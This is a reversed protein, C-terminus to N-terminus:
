IMVLCPNGVHSMEREIVITSWMDCRDDEEGGRKKKGTIFRTRTHTGRRLVEEAYSSCDGSFREQFSCSGLGSPLCHRLSLAALLLQEVDTVPADALYRPRSGESRKGLSKAVESNDLTWAARPLAGWCAQTACAPRLQQIARWCSWGGRRSTSQLWWWHGSVDDYRRRWIGGM